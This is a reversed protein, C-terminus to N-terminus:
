DPLKNPCKNKIEQNITSKTSDKLQMFHRMASGCDPRTLKLFAIVLHYRAKDNDKDKSLIDELMVIAEQPAGKNIKEIAQDLINDSVSINKSPNYFHWISFLITSICVVTVLIIRLNRNPFDLFAKICLIFILSVTVLFLITSIINAENEKPQKGIWLSGILAIIVIVLVVYLANRKQKGSFLAAIAVLLGIIAAIYTIINFNYQEM